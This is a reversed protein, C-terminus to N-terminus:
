GITSLSFRDGALIWAVISGALNIWLDTPHATRVMSRSITRIACGGTGYGPHLGRSASPLAQSPEPRFGPLTARYERAVDGDRIGGPLLTPQAFRLTGLLGDGHQARQAKGLRRRQRKTGNMNGSLVTEVRGPDPLRFNNGYNM